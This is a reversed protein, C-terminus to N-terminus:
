LLLDDFAGVTENMAARLNLDDALVIDRPTEVQLSSLRRIRRVRALHDPGLSDEEEPTLAVDPVRSPDDLLRRYEELDKQRQLHGYQLYDAPPLAALYAARGQVDMGTMDRQFAQWLDCEGADMESVHEFFDFPVAGNDQPLPLRGGNAAVYADRLRLPDLPPLTKVTCPATQQQNASVQAFWTYAGLSLVQEPSIGTFMKSMRAAATPDNVRGIMRTWANNIIADQMWPPLQTWYQTAVIVGLGFGRAEAMMKEFDRTVFLHFEDVWLSSPIPYHGKVRGSAAGWVANVLLTGLAAANKDGVAPNKASVDILINMGADLLKRIPLTTRAQGVVQRTMPKTLLPSLRTFLPGLMEQQRSGGTNAFEDRWFDIVEPNTVREIVTERYEQRRLFAVMHLMTPKELGEMVAQVTNALIRRMRVASDWDGGIIKELAAVFSDGVAERLREDDGYDLPNLGFTRAKDTPNIWITTAEREQPIGKLIDLTLSRHPELVVAGFGSMTNQLLVNAMLTSKGSGTAGVFAGHTNWGFDSSGRPWVVFVRNGDRMAGFGLVRHHCAFPPRHAVVIEQAPPLDAGRATHLDGTQGRPLHWLAAVEDSSLITFTGVQLDFHRGQVPGAGEGEGVQKLCNDPSRSLSGVAMVLRNLTQTSAPEAFIRVTASMARIAGAKREMGQLRASDGGAGRGPPQQSMSQRLQETDRTAVTKWRANVASASRLIFQVGVRGMGPRRSLSALVFGLSDVSFDRVEQLPYSFRRALGLTVWTTDPALGQLADPARLIDVPAALQGDPFASMLGQVVTQYVAEPVWVQLAAGAESGIIELSVHVDPFQALATALFDQFNAAETGVRKWSVSSEGRPPLLLCVRASAALSANHAAQAEYQRQRRRRWLALGGVGSMGFLAGILVLHEGLEALTLDFLLMAGIPAAIVVLLAARVGLPLRALLSQLANTGM